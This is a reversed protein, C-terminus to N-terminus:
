KYAILNYSYFLRSTLGQELTSFLLDKQVYTFGLREYYIRSAVDCVCTTNRM